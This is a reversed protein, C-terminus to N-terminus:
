VYLERKKFKNIIVVFLPLIIAYTLLIIGLLKLSSIQADSNIFIQRLTVYILGHVVYFTLANKGVWEIPKLHIYQCVFRCVANFFVICCFAIPITLLYNGNFLTNCWMGVIPFGVVCGVIYVIMCPVVVWWKAEWDRMAYGLAFFSLGSAGNAVWYPLLRHDFRYALYSVVYGILVVAIIRLWAFQEDRKPLLWNAVMRVGFLSLLFWLPGNIPVQGRLFLGRLISYTARRLTLTDNMWGLLLFFVYGIASWIVFTKLLKQSDKKWLQKTSQKKFFQGSKYFFWPMFFHLFPFVVCPNLVELKGESNIFARVGEPILAADTIGWLHRADYGWAAQLAHYVIMWLIMVGSAFDLWPLRESSSVSSVINPTDIKM